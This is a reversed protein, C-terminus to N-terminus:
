EVGGLSRVADCLREVDCSAADRLLPAFQDWRTGTVSVALGTSGATLVQLGDLAALQCDTVGTMDIHLAAQGSRRLLRCYELLSRMEAAGLHGALILTHPTHAYM